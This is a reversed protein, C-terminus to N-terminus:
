EGHVDDCRHAAALARAVDLLWGIKRELPVYPDGVFHRLPKGPVLEMVLYAVRRALSYHVDLVPPASIRAVDRSAGRM